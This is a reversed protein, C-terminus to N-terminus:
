NVRWIICLVSCQGEMFCSSSLFCFLHSAHFCSTSISVYWMWFIKYCAVSVCVTGTCLIIQIQMIKLIMLAWVVVFLVWKKWSAESKEWEEVSWHISYRTVHMNQSFYDGVADCVLVMGWLNLYVQWLSLLMTEKEKEGVFYM